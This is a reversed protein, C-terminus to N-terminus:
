CKSRPVYRKNGNKSIVYCGGRPGRHYEVPERRKEPRAIPVAIALPTPSAPLVTATPPAPIPQRPPPKYAAFGAVLAAVSGSGLAIKVGAPMGERVQVFDPPKIDMPEPQAPKRFKALLRRLM